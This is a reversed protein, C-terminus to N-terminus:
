RSAARWKARGVLGYYHFAGIELTRADNIVKRAMDGTPRNVLNQIDPMSISQVWKEYEADSLGQLTKFANRVTPDTLYLQKDKVTLPYEFQHAFDRAHQCLIRLYRYYEVSDLDAKPEEPKAHPKHRPFYVTFDKLKDLSQELEDSNWALTERQKNLEDQSKFYFFYGM